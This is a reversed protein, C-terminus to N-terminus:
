AVPEIKHLSKPNHLKVQRDQFEGICSFSRFVEAHCPGGVLSQQFIAMFRRHILGAFDVQAAGAYKNRQDERDDGVQGQGRAALQLSPLDSAARCGPWLRIHEM